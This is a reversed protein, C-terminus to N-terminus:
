RVGRLLRELADRSLGSSESLALAEIAAPLSAELEREAVQLALTDALRDRFAQLATRPRKPRTRFRSM